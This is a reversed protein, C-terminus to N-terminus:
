EQPAKWAYRFPFGNIDITQDSLRCGLVQLWRIHTDNRIDVVNHVGHEYSRCWADLWHRCERLVSLPARSVEPTAVLWMIGYGPRATDDAVGFLVSPDRDISGGNSFRMTYSERAISVSLPLVMSSTMGSATEIERADEPRLRPAMGEADARSAPRITIIVRTSEM